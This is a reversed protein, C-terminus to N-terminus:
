EEAALVRQGRDQPRFIGQLAGVEGQAMGTTIGAEM